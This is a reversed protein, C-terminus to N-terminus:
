PTPFNKVRKNFGKVCFTQEIFSENLATSRIREFSFKEVFTLAIKRSTVESNVFTGKFLVILM